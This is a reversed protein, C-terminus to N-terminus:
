FDRQAPFQTNEIVHIIGRHFNRLEHFNLLSKDRHRLTKIQM